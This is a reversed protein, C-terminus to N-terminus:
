KPPLGFGYRAVVNRRWSRLFENSQELVHEEFWQEDGQQNYDMEYESCKQLFFEALQEACGDVDSEDGFVAQFYWDYALFDYLGIDWNKLDAIIGDFPMCMDLRYVLEDLEVDSLVSPPFPARLMQRQGSVQFMMKYGTLQIEATKLYADGTSNQYPANRRWLFSTLQEDKAFQVAYVKIGEGFNETLFRYFDALTKGAAQFGALLADFHPKAEKYIAEDFGSVFDFSKFAASEHETNGTLNEIGLRRSDAPTLDPAAM